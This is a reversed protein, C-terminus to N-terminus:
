VSPGVDVDGLVELELADYRNHLPVQSPPVPQKNGWVPVEKWGKSDKLNGRGVQSHSLLHDGVAQPADGGCEELHCLAVGGILRRGM